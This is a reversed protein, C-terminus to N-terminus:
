ENEINNKQYFLRLDKMQQKNDIHFGANDLLLEFFHPCYKDAYGREEVMSTGYGTAFRSRYHFNDLIFINTDGVEYTTHPISTVDINKNPSCGGMPGQHLDNIVVVDGENLEFYSHLVEEVKVVYITKYLYCKSTDPHIKDIVKGIVMGSTLTAYKLEAWSLSKFSVDRENAMLTDYWTTDVPKWIKLLYDTNYVPQTINTLNYKEALIKMKVSDQHTVKPYSTDNFYDYRDCNLYESTPEQASSVTLGGTLIVILLYCYTFVNNM